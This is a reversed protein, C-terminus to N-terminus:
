FLTDEVSQSFIPCSLVWRSVYALGSERQPVIALRFRAFASGASNQIRNGSYLRIKVNSMWLFKSDAM